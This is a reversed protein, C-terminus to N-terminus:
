IFAKDEAFRPILCKLRPCLGFRARLFCKYSFYDDRRWCYNGVHVIWRIIYAASWRSLHEARGGYTGLVWFAIRQGKVEADKSWFRTEVQLCFQPLLSLTVRSYGCKMRDVWRMMRATWGTSGLWIGSRWRSWGDVQPGWMRREPRSLDSSERPGRGVLGWVFVEEVRPIAVTRDWGTSFGTVPFLLEQM